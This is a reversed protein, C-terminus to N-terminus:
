ETYMDLSEYEEGFSKSIAKKEKQSVVHHTSRFYYLSYYKTQDVPFVMETNYM